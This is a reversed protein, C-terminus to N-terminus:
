QLPRWLRRCQLLRRHQGATSPRDPVVRQGGASQIEATIVPSLVILRVKVVTMDPRRDRIRSDAFALVARYRALSDPGSSQAARFERLFRVLTTTDLPARDGRQARAPQSLTVVATVFLLFIRM